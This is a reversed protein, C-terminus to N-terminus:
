EMVEEALALLTPPAALDLREATKLNLVLEFKTPQMVPLDTAPPRDYGGDLWCFEVAIDPGEVRGAAALGHRIRGRLECLGVDDRRRSLRDGADDAAARM